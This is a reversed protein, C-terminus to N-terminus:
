QDGLFLFYFGPVTFHIFLSCTYYIYISISHVHLNAQVANSLPPAPINGCLNHSKGVASFVSSGYKLLITFILLRNIIMCKITICCCASWYKLCSCTFKPICCLFFHLSCKVRALSLLSFHIARKTKM